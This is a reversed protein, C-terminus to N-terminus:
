FQARAIRLLESATVTPGEILTQVGGEQWRIDSISGDQSTTSLAQVGTALNFAAASGSTGPAGNAHLSQEITSAWESATEQSPYETVVLRGDATSAYILAIARDAKSLRSPDSILVMSPQGLGEPLYARFSLLAQATGISAVQVGFPIPHDYDPRVVDPPANPVAARVDTGQLSPKACAVAVAMLSGAVLTRRLM